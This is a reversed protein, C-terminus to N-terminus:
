SWWVLTCDDPLRIIPENTDPNIPFQITPTIMTTGYIADPSGLLDQLLPAITYNGVNKYWQVLRQQQNQQDLLTEDTNDTSSTGVNDNENNSKDDAVLVIYNCGQSSQIYSILQLALTGINRKRYETPVSMYKIAGVRPLEENDDDEEEKTDVSVKPTTSYSPYIQQVTDIFPQLPPGPQAIIGFKGILINSQKDYAQLEAIGGPPCIMYQFLLSSIKSTIPVDTLSPLNKQENSNGNTTTTADNDDNDTGFLLQQVLQTTFQRYQQIVVSGHESQEIDPSPQLKWIIDNMTYQEPIILITGEVGDDTPLTITFTPITGEKVNDFMSSPIVIKQVNTTIDENNNNNKNNDDTVLLRTRKLNQAFISRAIYPQSGLQQQNFNNQQHGISFSSVVIWNKCQQVIVLVIVVAAQRSLIGLM